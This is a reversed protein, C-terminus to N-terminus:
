RKRVDAPEATFDAFRSRHVAFTLDMSESDRWHRFTLHRPHHWLQRGRQDRASLLTLSVGTERRDLRAEAKWTGDNAQDLRLASLELDRGNVTQRRDLSVHHSGAVRLGSFSTLEEPAFAENRSFEVPM